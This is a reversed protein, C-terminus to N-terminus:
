RVVARPGKADKNASKSSVVSISVRRLGDWNSVTRTLGAWRKVRATRMTNRMPPACGASRRNGDVRPVSTMVSPARILGTAQDNRTCALSAHDQTALTHRTTVSPAPSTPADSLTDTRVPRLPASSNDKAAAPSFHSSRLSSTRSPVAPRPQDTSRSLWSTPGWVM